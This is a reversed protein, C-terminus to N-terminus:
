NTSGSDLLGVKEFGDVVNAPASFHVIGVRFLGVLSEFFIAHVEGSFRPTALKVGDDTAVFLDSSDNVDEASSRLIVRNENALGSDSLGSNNFTESM